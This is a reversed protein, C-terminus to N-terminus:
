IKYTKKGSKRVERKKKRKEYEKHIEEPPFILALMAIVLVDATM